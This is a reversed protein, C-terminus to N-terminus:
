KRRDTIVADDEEHGSLARDWVREGVRGEGESPYGSMASVGGDWEPVIVVVIGLQPLTIRQPENCPVNKEPYFNRPSRPHRPPTNNPGM